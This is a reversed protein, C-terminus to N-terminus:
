ELEDPEAASEAPAFSGRGQVALFWGLQWTDASTSVEYLHELRYPTRYTFETGTRIAVFENVGFEFGFGAVGSVSDGVTMPIARGSDLVNPLYLGSAVDEWARYGAGMWLEFDVSSQAAANEYGRISIGSRLDLTDAPKLSLGKAWTTGAEDVVDVTVRSEHVWSASVFPTGVGLDTSFAGGLRLGLGGPAPGRANNRAVWLNKGKSPPRLAADLRWTAHQNRAYQEDFPAFAAGLWVGTLGTTKLEVDKARLGSLYSGSGDAPEVVMDRTDRYSWTYGPSLALQLTAALGATPAFEVALDLDNRLVHRSGVTEGAEVLHGNLTSGSYRLSSRVGLEPPMETVDAAVAAPALWICVAFLSSPVM